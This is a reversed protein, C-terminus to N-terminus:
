LMRPGGPVTSAPAAAAGTTGNGPVTTKPSLSSKIKEIIEVTANIVDDKAQEYLMKSVKTPDDTTEVQAEYVAETKIWSEAIGYNKTNISKSYSRSIKTVLM